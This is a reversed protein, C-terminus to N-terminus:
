GSLTSWWKNFSRNTCWIGHEMLDYATMILIINVAAPYEKSLTAEDVLKPARNKLPIDFFFGLTLHEQPNFIFIVTTTFKLSIPSYLYYLELKNM